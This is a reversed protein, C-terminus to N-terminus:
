ARDTVGAHPVGIMSSESGVTQNRERVAEILLTVASLVATVAIPVLNYFFNNFLGFSLMCAWVAAGAFLSGALNRDFRPTSRPRILSAVLVPAFVSFASGVGVIYRLVDAIFIAIVSLATFMGLIVLRSLWVFKRRSHHPDVGLLNAAVTSAVSYARSDLTSMILALLALGLILGVHPAIAPNSLSEYVFQDPAIDPYLRAVALGFVIFSSYVALSTPATLATGRAATRESKASFIRQWSDFYAYNNLFMLVPLAVMETPPTTVLQDAAEDWRPYYGVAYAYVAFGVVIMWQLIDTRIVSMYGGVLLYAVTVASIGVVGVAKPVGLLSSFMLGSVHVSAAMSLFLSLSIVIASLKATTPGARDRLMDSMTVYNREGALRRIRPAQIALLAYALSVAVFVWMMSFGTTIGLMVLIVFGSGDFISVVQSSTTGVVGVRRGALVFGSGDRAARSRWAVIGLVVAYLVIAVLLWPVEFM